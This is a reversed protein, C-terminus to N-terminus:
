APVLGPQVEQGNRKRVAWFLFASGVLMLLVDAPEPVASIIMPATASLNGTFTAPGGGTITATLALSYSGPKLLVTDNVSNVNIWSTPQGSSDRNIINMWNRGAQSSVLAGTSDYLAYSLSLGPQPNPNTPAANYYGQAGSWVYLDFNLSSNGTITIGYTSTGAGGSIGFQSNSDVQYTTQAFVQGSSLLAVILLLGRWSKVLHRIM